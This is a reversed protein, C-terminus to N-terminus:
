TVDVESDVITGVKDVGIYEDVDVVGSVVAARKVELTGTMVCVLVAELVLATLSVVVESSTVNGTRMIVVVVRLL